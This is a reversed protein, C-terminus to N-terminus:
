WAAWSTSSYLLSLLLLPLRVSGRTECVRAHLPKSLSLSHYIISWFPHVGRDASSTTQVEGRRSGDKRALLWCCCVSRCISPPPHARPEFRFHRFYATIFRQNSNYFSRPKKQRTKRQTKHKKQKSISASSPRRGVVARKDISAVSRVSRPRCKHWKFDDEEDNDDDNRDQQACM